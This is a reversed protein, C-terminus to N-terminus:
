KEAGTTTDLLVVTNQLPAFVTNTDSNVAISDDSLSPAGDDDPSSVEWLIAGSPTVKFIKPLGSVSTRAYANGTDDCDMAAVRGQQEPFDKRWLFTGSKDYRVILAKRELRGSSINIAMKMGGVYIGDAGSCISEGFYAGNEDGYEKRWVEAGFEDYEALVLKGNLNGTLYFGNEAPEIALIAMVPVMEWDLHGTAIDIGAVCGLTTAYVSGGSVVLGPSWGTSGCPSVEVSWILAGTEANYRDVFYKPGTSTRGYMDEFRSVFIGGSTFAVGTANDMDNNDAPVPINKAWATEGAPDLLAVFPDWGDGDGDSHRGSVAVEGTVENVAIHYILKGFPLEYIPIPENYEDTDTASDCGIDALDIFGDGDDDEGNSCAPIPPPPPDPENYEDDDEASLCGPDDPYDTLLDGDDDEGNNCAYVPPPEVPENFEDDDTASDCGIDALDIFGDGDDDEGNSCAYVVGPPPNPPEEEPPVAVPPPIQGGGDGGGVETPPIKATKPDGCATFGVAFLVFLILFIGWDRRTPRWLKEM